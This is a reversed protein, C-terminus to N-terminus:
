SKKLIAAIQKRKDRATGPLELKAYIHNFYQKVSGEALFMEEAIERNTKGEAALQCVRYESESLDRFIQERGDGLMKKRTGEIRNAMERVQELFPEEACATLCQEVGPWNEAFPAIIGDPMALALAKGIEAEAEAGKGLAELAAATQIHLHLTCLTYPYSEYLALLMESRGAAEIYRGQALLVQNYILEYMPRAPVLLNLDDLRGEALWDPIHEPDGLVAYFYAMCGDLVTMLMSDYTHRLQEAKWECWKPDFEAEGCLDLRFALLDCCLLIYQQEKEKADLVAKELMIRADVYRGRLFMAEAEMVKEAGAGQRRTVQYYYPMSRNMSEIERDLEGAKRHFMMLVSPSGFTYANNTDISIAPRTMQSCASRHLVSMAEIDNYGLFSLILDCEGRLNRREEEPIDERKAVKLLLEKLHMMKPIQRLSFLRRMLVLLGRPESMLEEDTRENIWSLVREPALSALQIGNDEGVLRLVDRHAGAARYFYLALLYESHAEYWRGYRLHCLARTEEPLMSFQREMCEKLMHHLRYTVGDALLRVFANCRTLRGAIERCDPLQTIFEAQEATFEGTRCMKTLFEHEEPTLSTLLTSNLMEYIDHSETLLRRHELYSQLNLYIASFWGESIENLIRLEEESLQIGCRRSYISLEEPTLRLDRVTIKTLDRGLQMEEGRTLFTDRSAVILHCRNTPISVIALLLRTMQEEEMLHYDDIFIYQDERCSDFYDELVDKFLALAAMSTPPEMQGLAEEAGTGRFAAQFRKWFLLINSSYVNLSLVKDGAARRQDLFWNIATSKGYGMPATVTTLRCHSIQEMAEQIRDSIYITGIDAKYRPM